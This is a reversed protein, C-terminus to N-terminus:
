SSPNQLQEIQEQLAKVSEVLLGVLNGYAVTLYEGSEFVAEPVVKQVDQAVLGIYRRDQQIDNREFTVGRLAAIKQLPNEITKVNTKLRQDSFATVDGQATINGESRIDGASSIDGEITSISGKATINADGTINGGANVDVGSITMSSTIDGETKILSQANIETVELNGSANINSVQTISGSIAIDGTETKSQFLNDAEERTYRQSESLLRQTNEEILRTNLDADAQQRDSRETDLDGELVTVRNDNSIKYGAFVSDSEADVQNILDVIEKFSDKDGDSAQLISDIRSKEVEILASLQQTLQTATHNLQEHLLKANVLKAVVQNDVDVGTAMDANLQNGQQQLGQGPLLLGPQHRWQYGPKGDPQQSDDILVYVRNHFQSGELVHVAHGIKVVQMAADTPRSAVLRDDSQQVQWIQNEKMITQATLLILDGDSIEVGDISEPLQSLDINSLHSACKVATPMLIPTGLLVSKQELWKGVDATLLKDTASTHLDQVSATAVRSSDLTGELIQDANLHTIASGNGSLNTSSFNTTSIDTASINTATFVSTALEDTTIKNTKIDTTEITKSDIDDTHITNVQLHQADINTTDVHPTQLSDSILKEAKLLSPQMASHATLDISKPLRELSLQGESLRAANPDLAADILQAFQAETPVDGSQFYSKLTSKLAENSM